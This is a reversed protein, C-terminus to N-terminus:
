RGHDIVKKINELYNKAVEPEDNELFGIAFDLWAIIELKTFDCEESM